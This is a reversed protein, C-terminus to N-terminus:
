LKESELCFYDKNVKRNILKRANEWKRVKQNTCKYLIGRELIVSIKTKLLNM